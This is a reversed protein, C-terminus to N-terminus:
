RRRAHRAIAADMDELSVAPRNPRRLLGKLEGVDLTEARVTVRGQTDIAFDVQDGPKVRLFDRIPKPLTVQGKSTITTHTM